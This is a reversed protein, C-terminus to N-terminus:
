ESCQIVLMEWCAISGAHIHAALPFTCYFLLCIDRCTMHRNMNETWINSPRMSAEDSGFFAHFFPAHACGHGIHFPTIIKGHVRDSTLTCLGHLTFIPLLSPRQNWDPSLAKVFFLRCASGTGCKKRIPRMIRGIHLSHMSRIFYM